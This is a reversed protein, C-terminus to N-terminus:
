FELAVSAKSTPYYAYVVFKVNSFYDDFEEGPFVAKEPEKETILKRLLYALTDLFQLIGTGGMFMVNTGTINEASLDLGGGLPGTIYFQDSEKADDLQKSIGTKTQKYFKIVSELYDDWAESIQTIGKYNRELPEDSLISKMVNMYQPYVKSHLCNCITYYRCCQNQLSTILYHRGLMEIGPNFLRVKTKGNGFKVKYIDPSMLDKEKVYFISSPGSLAQPKNEVANTNGSSGELDESFLKGKEKPEIIKACVMKVLIKAAIMSHTHPKVRNEMSYSGYFYKGLDKGVCEDLVYKGGPHDIGYYSLDVVYNDFLALKKKSQQFELITMEKLKKTRLPDLDSYKFKYTYLFVFEFIGLLLIM